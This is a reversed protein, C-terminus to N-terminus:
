KRHCDLCSEGVKFRLTTGPGAPFRGTEVKHCSRCPLSAHNGIRFMLEQGRHRYSSVKFTATSHCTACAADVQGLHPDKHCGACERPVPSLRRATGVGAPFDATQSPHCKACETARHKGTLPFAGAEHSFRTPAFRASDVAHCRQCETGVQGLHVDAHCTACNTSPMRARVTAGPPSASGTSVDTKRVHCRVCQVGAHRGAFFEPSRPHVFGPMKFTMTPRHCADCLRGFEGKHHDKHCSDCASSLGKFDAVKRALPVDDGSLSTHCRRCALGAHRATLPFATRAAHDFSANRFSTEQHCSRCDGTVSERHPNTHCASCRNFRLGRFAGAVHCKECAVARHAGNLAFRARAHDFTRRAERFPVEPSHCRTCADGLVAKHPDAHCSQCAPRATLFSRAKHCADCKSVVKAHQGALPYGTEALHDFALVDIRLLDADVGGHERHCPTCATTVKRHVGKRAAIRAQIPAHCELCRAASVGEGPEHCRGCNTVGELKMHARSLPGPSVRVPQAAASGTLAPVLVALALARFASRDQREGPSARAGARLGFPPAARPADPRSGQLVSLGGDCRRQRTSAGGSRSDGRGNAPKAPPAEHDLEGPHLPLIM